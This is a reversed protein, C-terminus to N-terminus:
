INMSVYFYYVGQRVGLFGLHFESAIYNSQTYICSVMNALAAM